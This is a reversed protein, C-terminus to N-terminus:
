AAQRKAYYQDEAQFHAVNAALWFAVGISDSVDNNAVHFGYKVGLLNAAERVQGKLWKSGDKKAVTVPAKTVGIFSKRWTAPRVMRKPIHFQRLIACAAGTMAHLVMLTHPNSTASNDPESAFLGGGKRVGNRPIVLLPEEIAAYEIRAGAARESKLLAYLHDSLSESKTDFDDGLCKWSGCRIRPPKGAGISQYICFGTTSAVDLGILM